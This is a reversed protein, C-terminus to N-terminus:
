IFLLMEGKWCSYTKITNFLKQLIVYRKISKLIIMNIIGKFNAKHIIEKYQINSKLLPASTKQIFTM